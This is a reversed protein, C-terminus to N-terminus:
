LRRFICDMALHVGLGLVTAALLSLAERGSIGPNAFYSKSM